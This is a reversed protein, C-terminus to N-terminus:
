LMRMEIKLIRKTGPTICFRNDIRHGVVWIIRQDMELVRIKEKATKSLKADTLFRAIKKKKTMGLPYFYDGAKWKRLILPFVIKDADLFATGPKKETETQGITPLTKLIFEGDPLLVLQDEKEIIFRAADKDQLPAIILWARNKIIRHSNSSIYKGNASDMLKLCEEVQAASFGYGQIIEFLITRLPLTKKLLLIPIHVEEGAAKMLRKKHQQVSQLYLIEVETFRRINAELNHRTEPFVAEVEPILQNRFYNRTYKDSENSSDEVWSLQQDEAFSKLLSKPFGLLPRVLKGQKAQMGRLGAIGTGRFFHMLMTEINDDLHHATLIFRYHRPDNALVEEFWRYRLDRAAVQISVGQQSAYEQTNMKRVLLPKEYKAALAKVFAEDRESEEGRLQFNVHAIGFDLGSHYCCATLAVSDLGGSVALLLRDGNSFLQQQKVTEQFRLILNEM